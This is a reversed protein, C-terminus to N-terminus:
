TAIQMHLYENTGVPRHRQPGLHRISLTFMEGHPFPSAIEPGYSIPLFVLHLGSSGVNQPKLKGFVIQSMEPRRLMAGTKAHM